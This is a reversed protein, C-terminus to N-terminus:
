INRGLDAKKASYEKAIGAKLAKFYRVFIIWNSFKPAWKKSGKPLALAYPKIGENTRRLHLQM